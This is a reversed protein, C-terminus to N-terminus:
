LSYKSKFDLLWETEEYSAIVKQISIQHVHKRLQEPVFSLLFPMLGREGAPGDTYFTPNREDYLLVFDGDSEIAFLLERFFQYYLALPCISNSGVSEKLFGHKELLEWYRRGIHHLYCRNFDNVPNRGDCDGGQMVSCGGFEREVLKAEIFLSRSNSDGKIVLDISTPQGSDENFVSRNEVEFMAKVDGAPWFIQAAEFAKRLPSLDNEVVLPGVLNFLM